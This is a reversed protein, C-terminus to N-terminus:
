NITIKGKYVQSCVCLCTLLSFGLPCRNAVMAGYQCGTHMSAPLKTGLGEWWGTKSQRGVMWNKIAQMCAILFQVTPLRM